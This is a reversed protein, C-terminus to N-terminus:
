VIRPVSFKQRDERHLLRNAAAASEGVFRKRQTDFRLRPGTPLSDTQGETVSGVLRNMRVIADAVPGTAHSPPVNLTDRRETRQLRTAANILNCWTTSEQGIEIPATLVRRDDQRIAQVFNEAHRRDLPRGPLASGGRGRRQDGDGQWAARSAPWGRLGRPLRDKARAPLFDRRGRALQLPERHGARRGDGVGRLTHQADRRRRELVLRDGASSVAIEQDVKDLFVNGRVDDILHLGWNGM